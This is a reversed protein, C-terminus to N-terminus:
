PRLLLTDGLLVVALKELEPLGIAVIRSLFSCKGVGIRDDPIWGTCIVRQPLLQVSVEGDRFENLQAVEHRDRESLLAPDLRQVQLM